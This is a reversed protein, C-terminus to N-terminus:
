KLKFIIILEMALWKFPSQFQNQFIKILSSFQFWNQMAVHQNIGAAVLWPGNLDITYRHSLQCFYSMNTKNKTINFLIKIDFIFISPM